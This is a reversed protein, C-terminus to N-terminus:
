SSSFSTFVRVTDLGGGLVSSAAWVLKDQADGSLDGGNESIINGCLNPMLTKGTSQRIMWITLFTQVFAVPTIRVLNQKCWEYPNWSADWVIKHWDDATKLFGSGPMWRPVNKVARAPTLVHSLAGKM